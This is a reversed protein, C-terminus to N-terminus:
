VELKLAVESLKKAQVYLKVLEEQMQVCYTPYDITFLIDLEKLRKEPILLCSRFNKEKCEASVYGTASQFFSVTFGHVNQSELHTSSIMM